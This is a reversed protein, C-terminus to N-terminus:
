GYDSTALVTGVVVSRGAFFACPYFATKSSDTIALIFKGATTTQVRLAKAATMAVLVVGGSTAAAIGGSATTTTLGAGTSADSLTIDLDFVGSVAVADCDALQFTVNCVNSTGAAATITVQSPIGTGVLGPPGTRGAANTLLNGNFRLEGKATIGFIRNHLDILIDDAAM